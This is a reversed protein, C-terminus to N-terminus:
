FRSGRRGLKGAVSSAIESALEAAAEVEEEVFFVKSSKASSQRLREVPANNLHLSRGFDVLGTAPAATAATALQIAPVLSSLKMPQTTSPLLATHFPKLDFNHASSREAAQKLL